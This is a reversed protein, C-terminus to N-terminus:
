SVTLELSREARNPRSKEKDPWVHHAELISFVKLQGKEYEIEIKGGGWLWSLARLVEEWRFQPLKRVLDEVTVPGSLKLTLLLEAYVALVTADPVNMDQRQSFVVSKM